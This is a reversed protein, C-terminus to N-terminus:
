DQLPIPVSKGAAWGMREAEGARTELVYRIPEPPYFVKPYTSPSLSAEVGLVEGTDSLWIIDIPVLMDKMWFGYSDDKPFVFLMGYDHPIVVRGSLGLLQKQETKAIEFNFSATDSLAANVAAIEKDTIRHVNQYTLYGIGGLAIFFVLLLPLLKNM